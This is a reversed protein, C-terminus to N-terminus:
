LSWKGERKLNEMKRQAEIAANVVKAHTRCYLAGPGFGALRECQRAPLRPSVPVVPYACHRPEYAQEGRDGYRVQAAAQATTPYGRM